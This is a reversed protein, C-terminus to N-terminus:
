GTVNSSSTIETPTADKLMRLASCSASMYSNLAYAHSQHKIGMEQKLKSVKREHKDLLGVVYKEHEKCLEDMDEEHQIKLSDVASKQKKAEIGHFKEIADVKTRWEERLRAMEKDRMKGM